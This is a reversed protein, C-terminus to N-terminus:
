YSFRIGAQLNLNFPRESHLSEVRDSPNLYYNVGPEVYLGVRKTFNYQAGVSGQLSLELGGMDLEESGRKGYLGKEVMAGASLYFGFRRSNLPSWVMKVPVGIYHLAQDLQKTPQKIDASLYSYIVGSEISWDGALQKRISVGISVPVHHTIEDVDSARTVIVNGGEVKVTETGEDAYIIGSGDMNLYGSEGQPLYAMQSNTSNLKALQAYVGSNLHVGVSWDKKQTRKSKSPTTVSRNARKPPQYPREVVKYRATDQKTETATETTVPKDAPAPVTDTPEAVPTSRAVLNLQAMPRRTIQVVDPTPQEPQIDPQVIAPLVESMPLPAQVVPKPLFLYAVVSIATLLAAAVAVRLYLVRIRLHPRLSRELREWGGDPLPESHTSLKEQLRKIWDESNTKM